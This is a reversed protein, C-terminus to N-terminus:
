RDCYCAAFDEHRLFGIACAYAPLDAAGLEGHSVPYLRRFTSAVPEAPPLLQKWMAEASSPSFSTAGYAASFVYEERWQGDSARQATGLNALYRTAIDAVAGSTRDYTFVHFGPNQGFIPSIAPVIKDVGVVAGATDRLLRYDDHHDHGSFSAAITGSYRALLDTFGTAYPEALMPVIRARCTAGKAHLTSYADIGPPIHHLLWVRRGAAQAQALQRGLWELMAAGAEDGTSGCPDSYEPSWLADDIVLVTVNALTPHAAAYYGGARYTADFDAALRDAGALQRVAARTADLYPGDPDIRYDGCGSDTNGLTLFVPKGGVAERVREIVYLTTKAAFARSEASGPTFGLAKQTLEPFDHAILDGTLVVFDADTAARAIEALASELLPFNTDHGWGAPRSSAKSALHATWSSLDLEALAAASSPPDFPDFHIDSMHLFVGDSAMGRAPLLAVVALFLITLIRRMSPTYRPAVSTLVHNM